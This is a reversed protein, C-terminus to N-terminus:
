LIFYLAEKKNLLGLEVAEKILERDIKTNIKLARKLAERFKQGIETRCERLLDFNVIERYSWVILWPHIDGEEIARLIADRCEQKVEEEKLIGVEIAKKLVNVLDGPVSRRELSALLVNKCKEKLEDMETRPTVIKRWFQEIKAYRNDTPIPIRVDRLIKTHMSHSVVEIGGNSLESHILYIEAHIRDEFFGLVSGSYTAGLYDSRIGLFTAKIYKCNEVPPRKEVVPEREVYSVLREGSIPDTLSRSYLKVLELMYDYHNREPFDEDATFEAEVRFVEFDRVDYGISAMGLLFARVVEETYIGLLRDGYFVFYVDYPLNRSM